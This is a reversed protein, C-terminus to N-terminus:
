LQDDRRLRPVTTSMNDAEDTELGYETIHSTPGDPDSASTDLAANGLFTGGGAALDKFWADLEARIAKALEPNQQTTTRFIRLAVMRKVQAACKVYAATATDTIGSATIGEAYLRTTLEAAEETILVAVRTATPASNATFGARWQPFYDSAVAAQTVGFENVEPV